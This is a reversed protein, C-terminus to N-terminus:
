ADHKIGHRGGTAGAAPPIPTAAKPKSRHFSAVAKARLSNVARIDGRHWIIALSWILNIPDSLVAKDHRKADAMTVVDVGQAIIESTDRFTQHPPATQYDPLDELILVSGPKIKREKIGRLFLKLGGESSKSYGSSGKELGLADYGCPKFDLNQEACWRKASEILRESTRSQPMTKSAFSLYSYATKRKM